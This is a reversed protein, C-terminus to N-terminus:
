EFPMGGPALAEFLIAVALDFREDLFHATRIGEKRDYAGYGLHWEHPRSLFPTLSLPKQEIEIACCMMWAM